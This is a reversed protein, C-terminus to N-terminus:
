VPRLTYLGVDIRGSRFGAECYCLYYEWLRRFREDFGQKAITPWAAQFRQRWDVLTRAYSDGFSLHTELALGAGEAQERMARVSPLMGGPFIHRQIFDASSRYRDFYDEHITIAQLVAHGGPALRERLTNFYVPWYAEGVAEIMEISVIRDYRGTVDRYDQLRLDVRSQLGRGAVREQAHALQERSLTLGTVQAGHRGALSAAVEGWGCGIELVQAGPPANVLDLIRQLRLAQAQELTEQGTDYLASSYLMTADLWQAYFDNGLDYHFAINQRSGSRSNARLRHFLRAWWAAPGKGELTRGWHAENQIGFLLVATLDPTSWDGDRYSEALGLDGQLMLRMLPRWGHLRLSAHAGPHEGRAELRQGGPLELVLSGCQVRGLLHALMGRVARPIGPLAPLARALPPTGLAAASEATDFPSM